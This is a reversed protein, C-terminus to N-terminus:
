VETIKFGGGDKKRLKECKRFIWLPYHEAACKLRVIAAPDVMGGKVDDMYTTGDAMLVMFDVKFTAPQGKPPHSLWLNMPEFWYDAIEGALKLLSLRDRYATESKNMKGRERVLGRSLITFRNM